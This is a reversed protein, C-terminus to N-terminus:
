SLNYQMRLHKEGTISEATAFSVCNHLGLAHAIERVAKEPPYPYVWVSNQYLTLGLKKLRKRFAHRAKQKSVPIDFLVLHWKRDWVSQSPINLGWVAQCSLTSRGKLSLTYEANRKQLYGHRKLYYLKSVDIGDAPNGEYLWELIKILARKTARGAAAKSSM